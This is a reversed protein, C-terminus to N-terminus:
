SWGTCKRLIDDRYCMTITIASRGPFDRVPNEGWKLKKRRRNIGSKLNGHNGREISKIVEDSIKFIKLCQTIWSKPVMDFAKKNDIWAMALNKRKAKSENIIHQYIYLLKGTARTEKRCGKEEEPFLGRNILPYYIEERIQASLMKWMMPLCTISRYNNPATTKPAREPDPHEKTQDDM